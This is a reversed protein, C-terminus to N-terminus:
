GLDGKLYDKRGEEWSLMISIILRQCLGNLWIYNHLSNYCTIIEEKLFDKSIEQGDNFVHYFLVDSFCKEVFGAQDMRDLQTKNQKRIAM